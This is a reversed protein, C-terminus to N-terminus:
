SLPITYSVAILIDASYLVTPKKHTPSFELSSKKELLNKLMHLLNREFDLFQQTRSVSLKAHKTINQILEESIERTLLSPPVIFEIDILQVSHILNDKITLSICEVHYVTSWKPFFKYM